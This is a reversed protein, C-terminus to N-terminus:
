IEVAGSWNSVRLVHLTGCALKGGMLLCRRVGIKHSFLQLLSLQHPRRAGWLVEGGGRACRKKSPNVDRQEKWLLSRRLVDSRKNKKTASNSRDGATLLWWLCYTHSARLRQALFLSPNFFFSSSFLSYLCSLNSADTGSVSLVHRRCPMDVAPSTGAKKLLMPESLGALGRCFNQPTKQGTSPEESLLVSSKSASEAHRPLLLSRTMSRCVSMECGLFTSIRSIVPFSASCFRSSLLTIKERNQTKM